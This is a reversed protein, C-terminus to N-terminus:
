TQHACPQRSPFSCKGAKWAALHSWTVLDQGIPHLCLDTAPELYRQYSITHTHGEADKGGDQGHFM